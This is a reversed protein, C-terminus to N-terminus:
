SAVVIKVTKSQKNQTLTLLYVGASVHNGRSDTLDWRVTQEGRPYDDKELSKIKNGSLDTIELSAEGAQEMTFHIDSYRVAPVPSCELGTIATNEEDVGVATVTLGVSDSLDYYSGTASQRLAGARVFYSYSKQDTVNNDIFTKGNTISTNLLKYTATSSDARYVFFGDVDNADKEDFDCQLVVHTGFQGTAVKQVVSKPKPVAGQNVNMRLTPDGMLANHVWRTGYPLIIIGNPYQANYMVRYVYDIYNNQTIVTSYGITEGMGMHQYYWQPRGAWTCTLASGNSALVARMINNQSDWDGFYSGFLMTFVANVPKKVFDDTVGVGGCSNYYGGGCGYAWLVNTDAVGTFYDGAKVNTDGLLASFNRWGSNSFMDGGYSGFNDAIWGKTKVNMMGSRYGHNKDLYRKLLELESAFLTKHRSTDRFAPMDYFDVRGVQLEIKIDAVLKNGFDTQDFKGDGPINKNQERGASTSNLINDTWKGALDGDIDGYYCDAPWAGLHDPHGDPNLNGSYPVAVRGLILISKLNKKDNNYEQLIVNKVAKVAKGDFAETRSVYRRVVVWAEAQLDAELRNIENSLPSVITSDILLLVKGRFSPPPVEIGSVIYGSGLYITTDNQVARKFVQYEYQKGIEIATDAYKIATSDLDAISNGWNTTGALRRFISYQKAFNDKAWGIVIKHTPAKQTSVNLMVAFDKPQQAHISLSAIMFIFLLSTFFKIM